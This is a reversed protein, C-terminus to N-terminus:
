QEKVQSYDFWVAEINHGDADYVFAAYYGPWYEKRYGPKGNDKAGAKLATDYFADIEEKSKGEFAIHGPEVREKKVIWFSTQGGEMFGAAEGYEMNQQYGMPALAKIYFEKAKQYDSVPLSVHAIMLTEDSTVYRIHRNGEFREDIFTKQRFIWPECRFFGSFSFICIFFALHGNLWM